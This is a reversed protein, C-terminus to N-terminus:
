RMKSEHRQMNKILSGFEVEDQVEEKLAERFEQEALDKKDRRDLHAILGVGAILLGVIPWWPTYLMSIFSFIGALGLLMKPSRLLVGVFGLVIFLLVLFWM